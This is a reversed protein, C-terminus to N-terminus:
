LLGDEAMKQILLQVLDAIETRLPAATRTRTLASWVLKGTGFDYLNTELDLIQYEVGYSRVSTFSHSYDNYWHDYYPSFPYRRYPNHRYPRSSLGPTHQIDTYQQIERQVDVLKTVLISDVGLARAKGDIMERSSEGPPLVSFGPVAKVGWNALSTAFVSEYVQSSGGDDAVGLILAHRIPGSFNPDRWASTITTAACGALLLVVGALIPLWAAANRPM